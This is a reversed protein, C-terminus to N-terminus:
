VMSNQRIINSNQHFPYSSKVLNAFVRSQYKTLIKGNIRYETCCFVAFLKNKVEQGIILEQHSEIKVVQVM